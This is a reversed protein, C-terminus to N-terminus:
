DFSFRARREVIREQQNQKVLSRQKQAEVGISRSKRNAEVQEAIDRWLKQLVEQQESAPDTELLAVIDPSIRVHM